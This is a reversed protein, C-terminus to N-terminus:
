QDYQDKEKHNEQWSSEYAADLADMAPFSVEGSFLSDGTEVWALQCFHSFINKTPSGGVRASKWGMHTKWISWCKSPLYKRYNVWWAGVYYQFMLTVYSVWMPMVHTEATRHHYNLVVVTLVVSSAVMMMICNFYTGPFQSSSWPPIRCPSSHIIYHVLLESLTQSLLHLLVLCVKLKELLVPVWKEWPQEWFHDWALQSGALLLFSHINYNWCVTARM